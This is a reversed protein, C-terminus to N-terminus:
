LNKERADRVWELEDVESEVKFGSLPKWVEDDHLIIAVAAPLVVDRYERSTTREFKKLLTLASVVAHNKRDTMQHYFFHRLKNLIATIEEEKEPIEFSSKLISLIDEVTSTFSNEYYHRKLELTGLPETIQFIETLFPLSWKDYEQICRAFDHFTSALLWSRSYEDSKQKDLINRDILTDLIYTGILFNQFQHLFHERYRPFLERLLRDYTEHIKPYTGRKIYDDWLKTITESCFRFDDKKYSLQENLYVFLDDKYLVHKLETNLRLLKKDILREDLSISKYGTVAEGADSIYQDFFRTICECAQENHIIRDLDQSLDEPMNAEEKKGLYEKRKELKFWQSLDKNQKDRLPQAEVKKLVEYTKYDSSDNKKKIMWLGFGNDKYFKEDLIEADSQAVLTLKLDRPSPSLYLTLFIRCFSLLKQFYDTVKDVSAVLFVHYDMEPKGTEEDKGKERSCFLDVPLRRETEYRDSINWNGGACEMEYKIRAILQNYNIKNRKGIM